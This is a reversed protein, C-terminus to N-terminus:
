AEEVYFNSEGLPCEDRLLVLCRRVSADSTGFSETSHDCRSCRATVSDVDQGNDNTLTTQDIACEIKM